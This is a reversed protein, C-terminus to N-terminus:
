FTIWCLKRAAVVLSKNGAFAAVFAAFPLDNEVPTLKPQAQVEAKSEFCNGLATPPHIPSCLKKRGGDEEDAQQRPTRFGLASKEVDRVLVVRPGIQEALMLVTVVRVAGLRRQHEAFM